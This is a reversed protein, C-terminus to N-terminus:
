PELGQPTARDPAWENEREPVTEWSEGCSDSDEEFGATEGGEGVSVQTSRCQGANPAVNPAVHKGSEGICPLAEVAGATDLLGADTYTKMTLVLDGHRMVAQATRPSVGARSLNTGLTHRIAHLHVHRGQEDIKPIRAFKLDANMLELFSTSIAFVTDGANRGAVWRQLEKALDSRIPITSGQSNKEDRCKLKLFPVDGFSLDSVSLTRAEGIRLGTQALTKYILMREAGRRECKLRFKPSVNAVRKGANKGIRVTEAAAIPREVTAALLREMESDTLARVPRRPDLQTDLKGVGDFPNSLIRKEGRMNSRRGESRKGALWWGFATFCEIYGNYVAASMKRASDRQEDLWRILKDATMDSLRRFKCATASEHLRTRYQKVAGAAHKRREKYDLYDDIHATVSVHQWEAIDAEEPTLIGARVKEAERKWETLKSQAADKLTCGTSRVKIQGYGDRFKAVYTKSKTRLKDGSKTTVVKATQVKGKNTWEAIRVGEEVRITAGKPLPRTVTPRYLSQM